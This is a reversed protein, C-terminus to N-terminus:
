GSKQQHEQEKIVAALSTFFQVQNGPLASDVLSTPLYGSLDTQIYTTVLTKNPQGSVRNCIIACPHNTGRTAENSPPCQPHETWRANTSIYDPTNENVV